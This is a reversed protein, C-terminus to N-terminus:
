EEGKLITEGIKTFVKPTPEDKNWRVQLEAALKSDGASGWYIRAVAAESAGKGKGSRIDSVTEMWLRAM